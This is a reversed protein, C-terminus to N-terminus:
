KGNQVRPIPSIRITRSFWLMAVTGSVVMSLSIGAYVGIVGWLRSGLWAFPIAVGLLRIATLSSAHMPKRISNFSFGTYATAHMFGSGFVAVYLYRVMIHVVEPKESFLSSVPRAAVLFVLLSCAAYVFGFGIATTWAKRVRSVLGAGWNQGTFPNMVISLAMIVALFFFEIRIAVGFGAVAEEGYRALMCTLVGISLPVIMRTGAAPLGVYLIKKWSNVAVRVPVASFTIIKERYILVFLTACLSLARSFVTALAAGQIELMPFPGIGFILLPDLIINIGAAFMMILAPTKTDGLARIANNGVMPIVLFIMGLYWIKMYKKILPMIEPGAGLLRFLPEITFFGGTIFLFVCLISLVLSDTTLRKVKNHDGEGIARSIVASAGVGLGLALNGICIVVPYTFSLAALAKLGLKGVFYADALNFLIISIIGFIMPITLKVLLKGTPGETLIAKKSILM